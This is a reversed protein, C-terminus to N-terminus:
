IESKHFYADLIRTGQCGTGVERASSPPIRSNTYVVAVAPIEALLLDLIRTLTFTQFAKAADLFNSFVLGACRGAPTM